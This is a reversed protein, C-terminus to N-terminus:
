NPPGDFEKLLLLAESLSLIMLGFRLELVERHTLLQEDLTIFFPLDTQFLSALAFQRINGPVEPDDLKEDLGLRELELVRLELLWPPPANPSAPLNGLMAPVKELSFM